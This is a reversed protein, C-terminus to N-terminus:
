VLNPKLSCPLSASINAPKFIFPGAGLMIKAPLNYRLTINMNFENSNNRSYTRSPRCRHPVTDLLVRAKCFRLPWKYGLAGHIIVRFVGDRNSIGITKYEGYSSKCELKVRTGHMPDIDKTSNMCNRECLVKGEVYVLVRRRRAVRSKMAGGDLLGDDDNHSVNSITSHLLIPSNSDLVTIYKTTSPSSVSFSILLTVGFFYLFGCGRLCSPNGSKGSFNFLM